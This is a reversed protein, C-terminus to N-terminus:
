GLRPVHSANSANRANANTKIGLATKLVVPIVIQPLMTAFILLAIWAISMGRRITAVMWASVAVWKTASAIPLLATALIRVAVAIRAFSINRKV